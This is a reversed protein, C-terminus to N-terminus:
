QPKKERPWTRRGARWTEAVSQRGRRVAKGLDAVDLLLYDAPSGAELRGLAPELVADGCSKTYLTVAQEPALRESPTLDGLPTGPAREVAAEIGTWPDLPEVPADSSGSLDHGNELLSRFAYTWRAREVGLRQPVWWDTVVFHPQVVLFPRLRNLAPAVSPPTMSAHEIRPRGAAPHSELIRLVRDMARDGIAHVAAQLGLEKSRDLGEMLESDTWLPFGVTAADAYEEFLWATHAGFSGDTEVKMGIVSCADDRKGGLFKPADELNRLDIYFRLRVPLPENQALRMSFQIEVTSSEVPVLTTLGLSAAYVLTRSIVGPDARLADVQLYQLQVLANDFLVGTLRGKADRGYVGGPPDSPHEGVKIADLAATNLVAAHGCVRRLIVPRDLPLSDLDERTPYRRDTMVEQDWGWGLIPGKPHARSWGVVRRQLDKLDKTGRLDLTERAIAVEALHMHADVLGPIVLKGHLQVVDTGKGKDRLVSSQSGVSVVKGGEVLLAAQYRDGTFVRGGVLARDQLGEASM